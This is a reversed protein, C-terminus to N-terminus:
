AEIELAKSKFSMALEECWPLSTGPPTVTGFLYHAAGTTANEPFEGFVVEQGCRSSSGLTQTGETSIKNVDGRDLAIVSGGLSIRSGECNFEAYLGGDAPEFDTGVGGSIYGLTADLLNTAITGRLSGPTTCKKGEFTCMKLQLVLASTKPGTIEGSSKGSKCEIVGVINGGKWPESEDEPVYVGLDLEGSLGTFRKSRLAEWSALEYKGTHTESVVSCGADAFEGARGHAGKPAKTCVRYEPLAASAMSTFLTAVCGAALIPLLGRRISVVFFARLMSHQALEWWSISGAVSTGSFRSHM